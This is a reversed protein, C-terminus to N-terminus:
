LQAVGMRRAFNEEDRQIWELSSFSHSGALGAVAGQAGNFGNWAALATRSEDTYMEDRREQQIWELSSFSHSPKTTNEAM